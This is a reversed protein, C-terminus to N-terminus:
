GRATPRKGAWLMERKGGPPGARKEVELDLESLLRRVAGAVTYTVLAGGPALAVALRELFPASWLEPNVDPSFADHYVADYFGEGPDADTADGLWLELRTGGPPAGEGHIANTASADAWARRSSGTGRVGNFRIEHRGPVTLGELADALGIALAPDRLQRPLDLAAIADRSPLMRELAVYALSTDHERAADATVLFNLGTGFGVELVRVADGAALRAEVGSARLFVWRAETLAGHQSHLTQGFRASHLTRSGDGTPVPTWTDCDSRPM